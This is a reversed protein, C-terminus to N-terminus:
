YFSGSNRSNKNELRKHSRLTRGVAGRLDRDAERGVEEVVQAKRDEVAQVSTVKESIEVVEERVHPNLRSSHVQSGLLDSESAEVVVKSAHSSGLKKL